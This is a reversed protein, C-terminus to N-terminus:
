VVNRESTKAAFPTLIWILGLLWTYLVVPMAKFLFLGWFSNSEWSQYFYMFIGNSILSAIALSILYRQITVGVKGAGIQGVVFGSLAYTLSAVGMMGSGAADLFFGLSFGWIVGAIPGEALAHIVLFIMVIDPKVGNITLLNLVSIQLIVLLAGLGITKLQNM